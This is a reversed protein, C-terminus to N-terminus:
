RGDGVEREEVERQQVFILFRSLFLRYELAGETGLNRTMEDEDCFKVALQHLRQAKDASNRNAIEALVRDREKSIRDFTEEPTCKKCVEYIECQCTM